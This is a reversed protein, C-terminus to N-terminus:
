KTLHLTKLVEDHLRPDGTAVITSDFNKLTIRDGSFTTVRGGAQEILPILAMIDYTNIGAEVVIDAFGHALQLFGFADAGMRTFYTRAMLADLRPRNETDWYELGSTFVIAQNLHPCPRTAVSTGNIMTPLGEGGHWAERLIAQEAAGFVPQGNRTLGILTTFLPIGTIFSKTGDIPDLCWIYEANTQVSDFEEGIIGHDPFEAQIIKRMAQEANKDALTVPSQDGKSEVHIPRRYFPLIEDRVASFIRQTINIFIDANLAISM